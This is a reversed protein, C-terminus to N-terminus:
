KQNLQKDGYKKFLEYEEPERRFNKLRLIDINFIELIEEGFRVYTDPYANHDGIVVIKDEEFILEVGWEIGDFRPSMPTKCTKEWQEELTWKFVNYKKLLELILNIEDTTLEKYICGRIRNKDFDIAFEPSSDLWQSSRNYFCLTKLKLKHSTGKYYIGEKKFDYDSQSIINELNLVDLNTIEKLINNLNRWHESHIYHHTDSVISLSLHNHGEPFTGEFLKNNNFFAILKEHNENSFAYEDKISNDCFKDHLFYDFDFLDDLMLYYIEEGEWPDKGRNFHNTSDIPVIKHNDLDIYFEQMFGSNLLSIRQYIKIKGSKM